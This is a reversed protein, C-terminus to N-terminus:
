RVKAGKFDEIIVIFLNMVEKVKKGYCLFSRGPKGVAM